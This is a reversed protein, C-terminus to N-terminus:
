KIIELVGKNSMNAQRQKRLRTNFHETLASVANIRAKSARLTWGPLFTQLVDLERGKDFDIHSCEAEETRMFGPLESRCYSVAVLLLGRAYPSKVSFLYDKVM